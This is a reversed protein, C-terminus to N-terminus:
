LARRFIGVHYKLLIDVSEVVDKRREGTEPLPFVACVPPSILNEDIETLEALDGDARTGSGFAGRQRTGIRWM